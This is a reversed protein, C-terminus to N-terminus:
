TTHVRWSVRTKPVVSCLILVTTATKMPPKARPLRMKPLIASRAFFGSRM